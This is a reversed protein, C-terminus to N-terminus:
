INYTINYVIEDETKYVTTDEENLANLDTGEADILSRMEVKRANIEELRQNLM